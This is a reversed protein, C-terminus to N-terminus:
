FEPPPPATVGGAPVDLGATWAIGNLLFKRYDGVTHMNDHFDSGGWVFSRGGDPRACLGPVGSGGRWEQSRRANGGAIRTRTPNDFLFYRLYM